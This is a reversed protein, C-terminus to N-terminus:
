YRIVENSWQKMMVNMKWEMGDYKVWQHLEWYIRL